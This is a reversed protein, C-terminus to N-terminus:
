RAWYKGALLANQLTQIGEKPTGRYSSPTFIYKIINARWSGPRLLFYVYKPKKSIWPARLSLVSGDKCTGKPNTQKHTQRNTQKNPHYKKVVRSCSPRSPINLDSGDLLPPPKLAQTWIGWNDCRIGRYSAPTVKMEM